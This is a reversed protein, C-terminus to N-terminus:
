ADKRTLVRKVLWVAGQLGMYVAMYVLLEVWWAGNKVVSHAVRESVEFSAVIILLDLIFKLVKKM